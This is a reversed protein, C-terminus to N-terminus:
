VPSRRGFLELYLRWRGDQSRSVAGMLPMRAVPSLSLAVASARGLGSAGGTVVAATKADIKM